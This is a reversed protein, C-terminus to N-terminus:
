TTAWKRQWLTSFNATKRKQLDRRQDTVTNQLRLLGVFYLYLISKDFFTNFAFYKEVSTVSSL